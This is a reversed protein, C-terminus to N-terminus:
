PSIVAKGSANAKCQGADDCLGSKEGVDWHWMLM